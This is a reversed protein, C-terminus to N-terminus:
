GAAPRSSPSAELVPDIKVSGWEAKDTRDEIREAIKAPDPSGWWNGTADVTKSSHNRLAPGKNEVISCQRIQAQGDGRIWVGGEANGAIECEAVQPSVDGECVVGTKANAVIRCKELRGASGDGFVVGNRGNKEVVCGRVSLGLSRRVSIGNMAQEAIRGGEVSIVGDRECRIGDYAGGVIRCQKAIINGASRSRLGHQVTHRIDCEALAVEGRRASVASEASVFEVHTLDSRPTGDAVDFNFGQWWTATPNEHAPLCRIPKEATGVAEIRGAVRLGGSVGFRLVAGAEIKLVTDGPVTLENEIVYPGQDATWTVTQGAPLNTMLKAGASRLKAVQETQQAMLSAKLFDLRGLAHDREKGERGPFEEMIRALEALAKAVQGTEEFLETRAFLANSSLEPIVNAYRNVVDTLEQLGRDFDGNRAVAMGHGTEARAVRSEDGSKEVVQSYSAMAKDYQKLELYADGLIAECEWKREADKLAPKVELLVAVAEKARGEAIWGKTQAMRMWQRYSEESAADGKAPQGTNLRALTGYYQWALAGGAAVIVVALFAWIGRSKKPTPSTSLNADAPQSQDTDDSQIPSDSM